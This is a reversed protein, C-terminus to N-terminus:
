KYMKSRNNMENWVSRTMPITLLFSCVDACPQAIEVEFLGYLKTLIIILPIFFIGSRASAIITVRVGKGISQLMMNSIMFMANLPLTFMQWCLATSGIVIVEPDDRFLKRVLTVDAGGRRLYAAAEFTRVGTKVIFNKTDMLIGAYLYQAEKKSLASVM